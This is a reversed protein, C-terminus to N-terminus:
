ISRCQLPLCSPPLRCLMTQKYFFCSPLHSQFLFCSPPPRCLMIQNYFFALHRRGACCSKVTFFCSPPPRCFMIQNYLYVLHRGACCTKITFSLLIAAAPVVHNSQLLFCSPPTVCPGSSEQPRSGRLPSSVDAPYYEVYVSGDM